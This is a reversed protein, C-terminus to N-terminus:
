LISRVSLRPKPKFFLDDRKRDYFKISSWAIMAANDIMMEKLNNRAQYNRVGDWMSAGEKVQDDWSWADPESKLLWYNINM